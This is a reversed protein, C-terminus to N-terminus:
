LGAWANFQDGNAQATLEVFGAIHDAVSDHGEEILTLGSPVTIGTSTVAAGGDVSIKLSPGASDWYPIASHVGGDDKGAVTVSGQSVGAVFCELKLVGSLFHLRV